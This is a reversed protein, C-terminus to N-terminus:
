AAGVAERQMAEIYEKTSYYVPAYHGKPLGSMGHETIDPDFGVSEKIIQRSIADANKIRTKLYECREVNFYADYERLKEGHLGTDRFLRRLTDDIFAIPYRLNETIWKGAMVVAMGFTDLRKDKTPKMDFIYELREKLGTEDIFMASDRARPGYAQMIWSSIDKVEIYRWYAVGDYFVANEQHFERFAAGIAYLTINGKYFGIDACHEIIELLRVTGNKVINKKFFGCLETIVDDIYPKDSDFLTMQGNGQGYKRVGKPAPANEMGDMFFQNKPIASQRANAELISEVGLPYIERAREYLYENIDGTIEKGTEADVPLTKIVANYEERAKEYDFYPQAAKGTWEDPHMDKKRKDEVAWESVTGDKKVIGGQRCRKYEDEFRKKLKVDYPRYIAMYATLQLREVAKKLTKASLEGDLLFLPMLGLEIKGYTKIRNRVKVGLTKKYAGIIGTSDGWIPVYRTINAGSLRFDDFSNM